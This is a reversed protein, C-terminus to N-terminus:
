SIKKGNELGFMKRKRMGAVQWGKRASGNSFFSFPMFQMSKPIMRVYKAKFSSPFAALKKRM